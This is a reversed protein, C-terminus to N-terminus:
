LNYKVFYGLLVVARTRCNFTRFHCTALFDKGVYVRLYLLTDLHYGIGYLLFYLARLLGALLTHQSEASTQRESRDVLFQCAAVLLFSQTKVIYHHEVGVFVEWEVGVALVAGDSLQALTQEVVDVDLFLVYVSGVSENGLVVYILVAAGVFLEDSGLSADVNGHEAYATHAVDGTVLRARVNRRCAAQNQDVLHRAVLHGVTEASKLLNRWARDGHADACQERGVFQEKCCPALLLGVDYLLNDLALNGVGNRGCEYLCVVVGLEDAVESGGALQCTDDVWPEDGVALPVVLSYAGSHNPEALKKAFRNQLEGVLVVVLVSQRVQQCAEARSVIAVDLNEVVQLVGDSSPRAALRVGVVGVARFTGHRSLLAHYHERGVRVVINDRHTSGYASENLLVVVDM